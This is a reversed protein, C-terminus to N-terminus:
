TITLYYFLAEDLVFIRGLNNLSTALDPHTSPLAKQQYKLTRRMDVRDNYFCGINNYTWVLDLDYNSLINVFLYFM